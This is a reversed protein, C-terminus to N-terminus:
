QKMVQDEDKNVATNSKLYEVEHLICSLLHAIGTNLQLHTFMNLTQEILRM